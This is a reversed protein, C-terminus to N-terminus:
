RSNRPEIYPRAEISRLTEATLLLPPVLALKPMPVGRRAAVVAQVAEFAMHYTDAAVVAAIEGSAVYALLDSDQDCGVLHVTKISRNRLAAHTGRTANVTFSLIARLDPSRAILDDAAEQAGSASFAGGQRRVIRINPYKEVFFQEAGRARAVVGAASRSLGIMAVPGAGGILRAIEAAALEGMKRDDNVVYGLKDSAPINLPTAIVSVPIGQDLIRRLPEMPALPHNPALVLGLYGKRGVQEILAVQGTVDSESTPASWSIESNGRDAAATAGSRGIEWLLGQASPPIFAITPASNGKANCGVSATALLLAGFGLGFQVAPAIM